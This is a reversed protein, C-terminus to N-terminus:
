RTCCSAARRSGSTRRTTSTTTGASRRSATAASCASARRGSRSRAREGRRSATPTATSARTPSGPSSRRTASTRARLAAAPDAADAAHGDDPREDRRAGPAQRPGRPQRAATASVYGGKGGVVFVVTRTAATRSGATRRRSSTCSAARASSTSRATSTSRRRGATSSTSSTRSTTTTPRGRTTPRSSSANVGFATVGLPQRIKRFGYGEGLEDLSAITYAMRRIRRSRGRRVLPATREAVENASSSGRCCATAPATPSGSCARVASPTRGSSSPADEAEEGPAHEVADAVIDVPAAGPRRASPRSRAQIWGTREGYLATAEPPLADASRQPRSWIPTATTGPEVIAVHMGVARARLRLADAMAELAFKSMAYAGLFPALDDPSLCWRCSM